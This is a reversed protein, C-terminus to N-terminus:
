VNRSIKKWEYTIQGSDYIEVFGNERMLEHNDIGKGYNTNFLQDFGRQRLFNDTVHIQTKCNYWHKSPIVKSDKLIFGLQEYVNGSFKSNDCYSIINNPNYKKIFYNFMKQSGGIIKFKPHYCLRLLEWEFKKNYRPNGFTMVAILEDSYYLGIRIIQNKCSNQFHYKNIFQKNTKNDIEKLVCSRAYIKQKPQLFTVVKNIDDWDWVNIIEYGSKRALNTKELHYLNDIIKGGYPNWNINHTASPNIEILLNNVKFDYLKGNLYFERDFSINQNQLLEAFIENPKSHYNKSNKAEPRMCNWEVGYKELCTQKVKEKVEPNSMCNDGGYKELCTQKAKKIYSDKKTLFKDSSLYYENGYKELCTQKSKEQISTNKMPNDVGYKELCTQKQKEINNYHSDGYVELKTMIGKQIIKERYNTGYREILTDKLKEQVNEDSGACSQCCFKAFGYKYGHFKVPKGCKCLPIETIGNYFMYLATKLEIGEYQTQVYKYFEPYYKNLWDNLNSRGTKIESYHSPKIM